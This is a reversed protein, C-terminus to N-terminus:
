LWKLQDDQLNRGHVISSQQKSLLWYGLPIIMGNEETIPIFDMPPIIEGSKTKWRLLAEVGLISWGWMTTSLGFLVGRRIKFAKIKIRNKKKRIFQGVEQDFVRVHNFGTKRAQMMATDANRILEEVTKSDSPYCAIGINRSIAMKQDEIQYM